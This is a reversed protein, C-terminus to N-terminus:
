EFHFDEKALIMGVMTWQRKKKEDTYLKELLQQTLEASTLITSFSLSNSVLGKFTFNHLNAKQLLRTYNM